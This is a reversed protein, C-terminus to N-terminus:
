SRKLAKCVSSAWYNCLGFGGAEGSPLWTDIINRTEIDFYVIHYFGTSTNKDLKEAILVLGTGSTEKLELRKIENEIEENSLKVATEDYLFLSDKVTQENLKKVASISINSVKIDHRKGAVYKSQESIMLTNIREFAEVFDSTTEQAGLVKTKSFDVGYFVVNDINKLVSKNQATVLLSIFLSIGISLITKTM